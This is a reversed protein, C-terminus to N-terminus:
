VHARGIEDKTRFRVCGKSPESWEGVCKIGAVIRKLDDYEGGFHIGMRQLDAPGLAADVGSTRTSPRFDVPWDPWIVTVM